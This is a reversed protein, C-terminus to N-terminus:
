LKVEMEGIVISNTGDMYGFKSVRTVNTINCPEPAYWCNAPNSLGGPFMCDSGKMVLHEIQVNTILCTSLLVINTLIM